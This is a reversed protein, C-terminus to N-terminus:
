FGLLERQPIIRWMNKLRYADFTLTVPPNYQECILQSKTRATLKKVYAKGVDEGDEPYMEILVHDGPLPPRGGCYLLEGPDYRPAMSTSLIHIAFVDPLHAIGPPRRALGAGQGNLSFDGDDGGVASGWIPVDMPGFDPRSPSSVIEADNRPADDIAVVEGRGLSTPDIRFYDAVKLLNETSPLNEGREWNGVAVVSTKLHDAVLQMSVGKQKRASRIATGITKAKDSIAMGANTLSVQLDDM